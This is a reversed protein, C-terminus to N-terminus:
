RSNGVLRRLEGRTLMPLQWLRSTPLKTYPILHRSRGHGGVGIVRIRVKDM